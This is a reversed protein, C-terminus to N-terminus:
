YNRSPARVHQFFELSKFGSAQLVRVSQAVVNHGDAAHLILGGDTALYIGVHSPSLRVGCYNVPQAIRKWDGGSAEDKILQRVLTLGKADTNPYSPLEIGLNKRYIFWLLGWCDFAVPGRGGNEWPKGIYEIAWHHSAGARTNTM